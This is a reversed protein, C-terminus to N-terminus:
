HNPFSHTAFYKLSFVSVGLFTVYISFLAHVTFGFYLLEASTKRVTILEVNRKRM